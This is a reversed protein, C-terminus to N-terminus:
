LHVTRSRLRQAHIKSVASLSTFSSYNSLEPFCHTGFCGPKPSKDLEQYLPIHPKSICTNLTRVTLYSKLKPSPAISILRFPVPSLLHTHTHTYKGNSEFHHTPLTTCVCKGERICVSSSTDVARETTEWVAYRHPSNGSKFRM